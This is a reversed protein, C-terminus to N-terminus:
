EVLTILEKDLLESLNNMVDSETLSHMKAIDEIPILTDRDFYSLDLIGHWSPSGETFDDPDLQPALIKVKM